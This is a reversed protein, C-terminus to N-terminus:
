FLKIESLPLCYDKKVKFNLVYEVSIREFEYHMHPTIFM